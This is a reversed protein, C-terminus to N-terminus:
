RIGIVAIMAKIKKERRYSFYKQNLCYTCQPNIEINEERLGLNLLQIKAIKKLDLFTKGNGGISAKPLFNKFKVLVEEGVEFHCKSIGPGIGVLIDEAKSKFNAKLKKIASNLINLALNRWGGHVLGVAEKIPDYLFIPLCDAVTIALFLNKGSTLLGDTAPIVKGKDKQTVIQVKNGHVLDASAISDIDIGLRDLFRRRNKMVEEKEEKLLMTGDKKESIVAILNPYKKFISFLTNM